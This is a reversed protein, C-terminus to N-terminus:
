VSGKSRRFPPRDDIGELDTETVLANDLIAYLAERHDVRSTSQRAFRPDQALDPRGLAASSASRVVTTSSAAGIAVWGDKSSSLRQVACVASISPDGSARITARDASIRAGANLLFAVEGELLHDGVHRGRGSQKRRYLAGLIGSFGHLDGAVIDFASTGLKIPAGNREGTISM